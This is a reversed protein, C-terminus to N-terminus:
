RRTRRRRDDTSERSRPQRANRDPLLIEGGVVFVNEPLEEGIGTNRKIIKSLSQDNIMDVMELPLASEYYFRDGDRLRIFQDVLIRQYTEGVMSDPVDKECLAGVWLDVQEPSDYVSSLADADIDDVAIDSMFGVPELGLGVRASNFDPIGHDRGRQINLSALDFGGAGPPGFLFNRVEDILHADLEQCKQAALGRLISDIGEEEILSPDFFAEALSLHGAEIEDGNADIRLLQPSLMSHGIRFAAAGFVNSIDARVSEDYGRYEPLANRGLLVPIFERYTIAQIEAGVIMRAFQYIEEGMAQPNIASYRGAWYNHERLFLTHMATLAAQENSRVDGALFLTPLAAPANPLGAENYPLLDGHDSGTVKLKGSGDLRRLAFARTDDSGYVQSGDIFASIANIQERVGDHDEYLSRNLAITETGTSFPDFHIDGTPVTIDFIEVPDVTPTEIIDHDLFQGWQWLYDTAGRANLVSGTQAVVANSVARASPRDAGAPSSVGDSYDNALLRITAQEAAGWTPNGINNGSGNVTRSEAPLAIEGAASPGPQAPSIPQSRRAMPRPLFAPQRESTQLKTTTTREPGTVQAPALIMTATLSFASVVIKRSTNPSKKMIRMEQKLGSENGIQRPDHCV